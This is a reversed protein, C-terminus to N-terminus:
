LGLGTLLRNLLAVIGNVPGNNDLLGAVACLLNGLLNGAGPVATIDLHVPALDVVLGLPDLHLPGLDLTLIDCAAGTDIADIPASFTTGGTPLGTGTILGTLTPTGGVNTVTLNSLNGVFATGDALTGTVPVTTAAPLAAPAAQSAAAPAHTVPAASAGPAGALLAALTSATLATALKAYKVTTNEKDTLPGRSSKDPVRRRM